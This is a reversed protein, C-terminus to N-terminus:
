STAQAQSSYSLFDEAPVALEVGTYDFPDDDDARGLGVLDRFRRNPTFFQEM